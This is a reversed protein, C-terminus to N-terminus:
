RCEHSALIKQHYAEAKGLPPTKRSVVVVELSRLTREDTHDANWTRCLYRAYEDAARKDKKLIFHIFYKRWRENKFLTRKAPKEWVVPIGNRSVDVRTGDRLIGPVVVWGTTKAPGPAFMKWAQDLYVFTVLNRLPKPIVWRSPAWQALLWFLVLFLFFAAAVNAALSGKGMEIGEPPLKSRRERRDWFWAPLFLTMATISVAPFLDLYLLAGFCLHMFMFCFVTWTRVPGIFVPCFLLVPGLLEFWLIAPTMGHLLQPFQLLWEAAPKAYLDLSFAYRLASGDHWTAGGWKHLATFVYVFVTQLLIAATGWSLVHAPQKKATFVNDLSYRVGLPLFMGWFLMMRLYNDAGGLILPNRRQLSAMFVWSLVSMWRTRYGLLLGLACLAQICFLVAMVWSTGNMLHISVAWPNPLRSMLSVRSLVGADAYFASLDAARVALDYLVVSAIGIRFLGLSRSDIKFLEQLPTFIKNIIPVIPRLSSLAQHKPHNWM